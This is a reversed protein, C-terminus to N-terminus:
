NVVQKYIDRVASMNNKYNAREAILEKNTIAGNEQLSPDNIVRILAGAMEKANRANVMLGNEGDTIWERMSEINGTVPFCGLAMAELMSNPTGDHISPSAFITAKSYLYWLLPQSIKPWLFVRDQIGNKRIMQTISVDGM